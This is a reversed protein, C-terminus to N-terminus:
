PAARPEDGRRHAALQPLRRRVLRRIAVVQRPQDHADTARDLWRDLGAVMAAAPDNTVTLPATGPLPAEAHVPPGALTLLLLLLPRLCNM